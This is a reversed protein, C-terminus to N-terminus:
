VLVLHFWYLWRWQFSACDLDYVYGNYPLLTAYGVTKLPSRFQFGIDSDRIALSQILPLASRVAITPYSTM